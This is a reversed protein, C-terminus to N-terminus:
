EECVDKPLSVLFLIIVIDALLIFATATAIVMTKSAQQDTGADHPALAQPTQEKCAEKPLSVSFLLVVLINALFVFATTAIVMAKSAQQDAGADDPALAQPTQEKCTEKPLPVLFLLIVLINALFVFTTATAIVMAQNAQQDTSARHSALAQPTEEEGTEKPLPVLFLTIGVDTLLLFATATATALVM